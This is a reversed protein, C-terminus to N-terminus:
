FARLRTVEDAEFLVSEGAGDLHQDLFMKLGARIDAETLGNYDEPDDM